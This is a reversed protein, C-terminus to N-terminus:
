SQSQCIQNTAKKHNTMIYTKEMEISTFILRVIVIATGPKICM